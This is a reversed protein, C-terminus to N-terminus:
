TLEQEGLWVRVSRGTPSVHITLHRGADTDLAIVVSRGPGSERGLSTSAYVNAAGFRFGEIESQANPGDDSAHRGSM